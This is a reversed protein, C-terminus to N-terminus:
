GPVGVTSSEALVAGDNDRARVLLGDVRQATLDIVLERASRDRLTAITRMTDGSTAVVEWRAIAADDGAVKWRLALRTPPEAAVTLAVQPPEGLSPTAAPPRTALPVPPTTDVRPITPAVTSPTPRHDTETPASGPDGVVGGPTTATPAPTSRDSTPTAAARDVVIAGDVVEAQENAELVVGGVVATGSPGVIIRTGNDLTEGAVAPVTTGDPLVLDTGTAEAVAVEVGQEGLRGALIGAAVVIVIAGLVLSPRLRRAHRASPAPVGSAFYAQSRLDQELRAAFVPDPVPPEGAGWRELRSRLDDNM